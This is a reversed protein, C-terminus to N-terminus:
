LVKPYDYKQAVLFKLLLRDKGMFEEAIEYGLGKAYQMFYLIHDEEEWDLVIPESFILRQKKDPKKSDKIFMDEDKLELNNM